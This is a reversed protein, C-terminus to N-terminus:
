INEIKKGAICVQRLQQLGNNDFAALFPRYACTQLGVPQQTTRGLEFYSSPTSGIAFTLFVRSFDFFFAALFTAFFVTLFFRLTEIFDLDLTVLAAVLAGSSAGGFSDM